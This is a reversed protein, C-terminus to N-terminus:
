QQPTVRTLMWDDNLYQLTWTYRTINQRNQNNEDQYTLEVRVNVTAHSGTRQTQEPRVVATISDATQFFAAWGRYFMSRLGNNDEQEFFFKLNQALLQIEPELKQLIAETLRNGEGDLADGEPAREDAQEEASVHIERIEPETQIDTSTTDLPEAESPEEQPTIAEEDPNTEPNDIPAVTHEPPHTAQEETEQQQENEVATDQEPPHEGPEETLAESSVESTDGRIDDSPPLATEDVLSDPAALSAAQGESLGTEQRALDGSLRFVFYGGAVLVLMLFVGLVVILGKRSSIKELPAMPTAARGLSPRSPKRRTSRPLPQTEDLTPTEMLAPEDPAPAVPVILGEQAPTARVGTEDPEPTARATTITEDAPSAPALVTEESASPTVVNPKNLVAPAPVITQTLRAMFSELDRLVAACDAYRDDRNKALCKSVIPQLEQSTTEREFEIPKPKTNLIKYIITTIHEGMFPNEGSLLEYFLVGFSFIDVRHDIAEGRIQEPSMYRPTGLAMGTMTLGQTQEQIRAIGFDMIKVRGSPLVRVNEPKIDRHVVGHEHAFHLGRCIQSAISLKDALSLPIGANLLGRLDDGELYEMVIYPKGNEEGVDYIITINEHSLRGASQAERYFRKKIAPVKLAREHVVKIAVDRDIITDHGKYVVGMGGEGLQGLIEYKGIRKM